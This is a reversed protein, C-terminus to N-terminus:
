DCIGAPVVYIRDEAPVLYVRNETVVESPAVAPVIRTRGEAPVIYVRDRALVVYARACPVAFLAAVVVRFVYAIGGMIGDVTAQVYITYSKRYEFGSATSCVIRETYFGVTNADDLKAMTGTLIPVAIEDEYIRYVPAFDTDTLEGTDPDHTCISFTLFYGITVQTQCGM